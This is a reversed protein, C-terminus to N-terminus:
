RLLRLLAHMRVMQSFTALVFMHRAGGVTFGQSAPIFVLANEISTVVRNQIFIRLSM